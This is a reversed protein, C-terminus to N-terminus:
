ARSQRAVADAARAAAEADHHFSDLYPHDSVTQPRVQTVAYILAANAVASAAIAIFPAWAWSFRM